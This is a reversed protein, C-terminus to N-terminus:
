ARGSLLQRSVPERRLDQFQIPAGVKHIVFRTPRVEYERGGGVQVRVTKKLQAGCSPCTWPRM